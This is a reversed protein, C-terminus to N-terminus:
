RVKVRNGDSTDYYLQGPYLAGFDDQTPMNEFQITNYKPDITNLDGIILGSYYKSRNSIFATASILEWDSYGKILTIITGAPIHLTNFYTYNTLPTSQLAFRDRTGVTYTNLDYFISSSNIFIDGGGGLGPTFTGAAPTIYFDNTARLYLISGYQSYTEYSATPSYLYISTLPAPLSEIEIITGPSTSNFNENYSSTLMLSSYPNGSYTYRSALSDIYTLLPVGLIYGTSRTRYLFLDAECRGGFLADTATVDGTASLDFNNASIQINGNSASIFTTTNGIFINDTHIDLESDTTSYRLYNNNDAYLELGVGSYTVAGKTGSSGPM